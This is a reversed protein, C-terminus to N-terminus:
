LYSTRGIKVRKERGYEFRIKFNIIRIEIKEIRIWFALFHEDECLFYFIVWIRPLLFLSYGAKKLLLM